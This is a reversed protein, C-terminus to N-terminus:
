THTIFIVKSFTVVIPIFLFKFHSLIYKPAVFIIHTISAFFISVFALPAPFFVLMGYIDNHRASPYTLAAGIYGNVFLPVTLICLLLFLPITRANNRRNLINQIVKTWILFFLLISVVFYILFTVSNLIFNLPIQVRLSWLLFSVNLVLLSVLGTAISKDLLKNM